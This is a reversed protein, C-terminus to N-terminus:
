LRADLLFAYEFAKEKLKAYRGSPGGHGAGMNTKLVITNEDTKSARLKAVWKAPEWYSVRPDNLGATVLINPYATASVNEYPSYTRMYDYFARDNPNGWEEYEAITLPLTDDLMTNVVDVFPVHAVVTHFLDPRLNVVAGMLLGGASGGAIALKGPSTYRHATLHEACAIFDTFTNMKHLLKGDEYWRRGMDGSGRIHAIAYIYGRDLLSIRESSFSPETIIGYSGYGYLYLPSQGNHEIGRRYVLSIPVQVGDPATAFIRESTYNSPDYGGLVAYQKKLERTRTNMDYDYVSRPTVLSTYLFRLNTADYDENGDPYITYAPEEFAVLHDDAGLVRLQKLGNAREVLVLHDRFGDLGEISVDDRHPLIETWNTPDTDPARLLRFNIANEDTRIWFFNGQHEAYYEVDQVRPRLPQFQGGPDNTALYRAESTAHSDIGLLLFKGSRTREISVNFRADTEEYVITDPATSGLQHHWLRYPRKTEDLTTYFFNLNDTWAGSYYVNPIDDPLTDGTQLNKFRLRYVESGDTDIAFALLTGDPSVEDYALSFYAHGTALANCDLVIQETPEAALPRRCHIPYQKGQEMRTYYEFAGYKAPVSSDTEQIRAVMETYIKTELESAPEMVHATYQNEAELYPLTKPHQRDRLYFWNDTVIEGHITTQHPIQPALPPVIRPQLCDLKAPRAPRPYNGFHEKL